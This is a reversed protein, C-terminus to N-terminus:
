RANHVNERIDDCRPRDPSDSRHVPALDDFLGGHRARSSRPAVPSDALVPATALSFRMFARPTVLARSTQTQRASEADAVGTTVPRYEAATDRRRAAAANDTTATAGARRRRAAQRRSGERQQLLSRIALEGAESVMTKLNLRIGTASYCPNE